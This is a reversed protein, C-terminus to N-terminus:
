GSYKGKKKKTTKLFISDGTRKLKKFITKNRRKAAETKRWSIWIVATEGWEPANQRTGRYTKEGAKTREKPKVCEDTQSGVRETSTEKAEKSL